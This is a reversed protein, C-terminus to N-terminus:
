GQLGFNCSRLSVDAGTGPYMGFRVTNKDPEERGTRVPGLTFTFTSTARDQGVTLSGMSQLRGPEETWPIKWALTNYHPTM